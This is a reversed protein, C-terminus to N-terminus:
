FKTYVVELGTYIDKGIQAPMGNQDTSCIPGWASYSLMREEFAKPVTYNGQTFATHLDLGRDSGLGHWSNKWGFDAFLDLNRTFIENDTIHNSINGNKYRTLLDRYFPEDDYLDSSADIEYDLFMVTGTQATMFTLMEDSHTFLYWDKIMEYGEADDKYRANAVSGAGGPSALFMFNEKTGNGETVTGEIQRPMSMWFLQGERDKGTLVNKDKDKYKMKDFNLFNLREQSENIWYSAEIMIAAPQRKKDFGSQIFDAQAAIHDKGTSYSNNYWKNKAALKWFATTYYKAKSWSIYYGTQDNVAVTATTPVPEGSMGWLEQTKDYGTVVEWDDCEFTFSAAYNEGFLSNTLGDESYFHNEPYKGSVCFPYIGDSNIKECLVILEELSSPMGDDYTCYVGDPGCSLYKNSNWTSWDSPSNIATEYESSVAFAMKFERGLIESWVMDTESSSALPSAFYYANNDFLYKDYTLGGLFGGSPALYYGEGHKSSTYRYLNKTVEPMKDEITKEEGPITTTFIENLNLFDGGGAQDAFVKYPNDYIHYAETKMNQVSPATESLEVDVKVGKKGDAYEKDAFAEEFKKAMALMGISGTGNNSTIIRLVSKGSNDVPDGGCAVASFALVVSLLLMLLKKM